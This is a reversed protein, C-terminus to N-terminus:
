TMGLSKSLAETNSTSLRARRRVRRAVEIEPALLRSRLRRAGCRRLGGRRVSWWVGSFLRARRADLVAPPTRVGQWGGCLLPYHRPYVRWVTRILGLM